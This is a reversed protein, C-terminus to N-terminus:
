VEDLRRNVYHLQARLSDTSNSSLIDPEPVNPTPVKTDSMMRGVTARPTGSRVEPPFWLGEIDLHMAPPKERPAHLYPKIASHTPHQPAM